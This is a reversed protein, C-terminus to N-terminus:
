EVDSPDFPMLNRVADPVYGAPFLIVLRRTDAIVIRGDFCTRASRVLRRAVQPRQFTKVAMTVRTATVRREAEPERRVRAADYGSILRMQSWTVAQYAARAPGGYRSGLLRRM